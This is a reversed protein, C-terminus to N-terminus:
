TIWDFILHFLLQYLSQVIDMIIRDFDPPIWTAISSLSALGVKKAEIVEAAGPTM